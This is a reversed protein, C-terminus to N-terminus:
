ASAATQSVGPCMNWDTPTPYSLPIPTSSVFARNRNRSRTRGGAEKNQNSTHRRIRRDSKRDDDRGIVLFQTKRLRQVMRNFIQLRLRVARFDDDDIVPGRISRIPDNESLIGRGDRQAQDRMVIMRVM